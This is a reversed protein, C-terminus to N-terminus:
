TWTIEIKEMVRPYFKFYKNDHVYGINIKYDSVNIENKSFIKVNCLPLTSLASIHIYVGREGGRPEFGLKREKEIQSRLVLWRVERPKVKKM